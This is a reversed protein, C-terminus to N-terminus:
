AARLAKLDLRKEGWLSVLFYQWKKDNRLLLNKAIRDLHPVGCAALAGMHYVAEHAAMEYRVGRADLLNLIAQKDM